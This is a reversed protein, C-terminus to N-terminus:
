HDVLSLDESQHTFSGIHVGFATVIVRYYFAFEKELTVAIFAEDNNFEKEILVNETLPLKKYPGLLEGVVQDLSQIEEPNWPTTAVVVKEDSEEGEYKWVEFSAGEQSQEAHVCSWLPAEDAPFEVVLREFIRLCYKVPQQTEDHAMLPQVCIFSALLVFLIRCM